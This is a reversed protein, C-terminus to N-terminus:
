CVRFSMDSHNPLRNTQYYVDTLFCRTKRLFLCPQDFPTVTPRRCTQNKKEKKGSKKKLRYSNVCLNMYEVLLFSFIVLPM